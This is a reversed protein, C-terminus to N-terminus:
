EQVEVLEVEFILTANAPVNTSGTEGYALSAPITLIRKGGVKMGVVGADWGKIVKGTGLTFSLPTNNRKESSDFVTGDELTGTYLVSVTSGDLAEAGEGVVVDEIVLGEALASAIAEESSRSDSAPQEEEATDEEESTSEALSMDVNYPVDAPMDNIVIDANEYLEETWESFKTGKNNVDWLEKYQDLIDTPIDSLTVQEATFAPTEEAAVEAETAAEDALAAEDGTETPVEEAPVEAAPAEETATGEAPVEEATGAAVTDALNWGEVASPNQAIFERLEDDTPEVTYDEYLQNTYSTVVLFDRYAQEDQYGFQQLTELWTTEDGGVTTKTQEIQEDISADDVTYGQAEAEQTIVLEKAKTEIVSERLTEPTYGSTALAQAWTAPDSYGEVRARTAEIVETIEQESIETGNVTAAVRNDDGGCAALTLLAMALSLALLMVLAIRAKKM